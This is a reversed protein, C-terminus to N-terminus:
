INTYAIYYVLSYEKTYSKYINFCTNGFFDYGTMRLLAGDTSQCVRLAGTQKTAVRTAEEITTYTIRKM